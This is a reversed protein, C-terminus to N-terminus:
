TLRARKGLLRERRQAHCAQDGQVRLLQETLELARKFDRGVHEYYKALGEIAQPHGRVALPTWAAVATPWHRRRRALVGLEMAAEPALHQRHTLLFEYAASEGHLRVHARAIGLLDAGHELPQEYAAALAGTLASMSLVDLANHEVVGPLREVVGGRLWDFWAQPALAGPLDNVRKLGLLQREASQLTCDTWVRKFARQTAHLLDLHPHVGFPDGVGALRFRTALLPVDFSKGNYTVLLDANASLEAMMELLAAEGQYRTLLLQCFEIADDTLVGLGVLFVHTGTGGALGTTETDLFLPRTGDYGFCRLSERVGLGISTAGHLTHLPLRKRIVILGEAVCEGGILKALESESCRAGTVGGNSPRARARRELETRLRNDKNGDDSGALAQSPSRRGSQSKLRNLKSALKSM